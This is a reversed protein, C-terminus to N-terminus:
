EAGSRISRPGGVIDSESQHDALRRRRRRGDETTPVYGRPVRPPWDGWIHKQGRGVGGFFSEDGHGRLTFNGRM